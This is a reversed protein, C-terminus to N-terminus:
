DFLDDDIDELAELRKQYLYQNKHKNIDKIFIYKKKDFLHTKGINDVRKSFTRIVNPPFYKKYIKTEELLKLLCLSDYDPNKNIYILKELKRIIENQMEPILFYYRIFILKHIKRKKIRLIGEKDLIDYFESSLEKYRRKIKDILNVVSIEWEEKKNNNLNVITKLIKNLIINETQAYDEIKILGDKITIKKKAYLDYLLAIAFGVDGDVDGWCFYIKNKKQNILLILYKEHILWKQEEISLSEPFDHITKIHNKSTKINYKNLFASIFGLFISFSSFIIIISYYYLPEIYYPYYDIILQDSSLIFIIITIVIVINNISCILCKNFGNKMWYGIWFFLIISICMIISSIISLFFIFSNFFYGFELITGIIYEWINLFGIISGFFLLIGGIYELVWEKDKIM